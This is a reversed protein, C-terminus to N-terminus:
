EVFSVGELFAKFLENYEELYQGTYIMSVGFSHGNYYGSYGFSGGYDDFTSHSFIAPVGKFDLGRKPELCNSCGVPLNLFFQQYNEPSALSEHVKIPQSHVIIRLGKALPNLSDDVHPNDPDILFRREESDGTSLVYDPNEDASSARELIWQLPNKFRITNITISSSPLQITYPVTSTDNRQKRARESSRAGADTINREDGNQPPIFFLYGVSFAVLVFFGLLWLNKGKM